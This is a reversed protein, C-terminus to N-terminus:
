DGDQSLCGNRIQQIMTFTNATDQLIMIGIAIGFQVETMVITLAVTIIYIVVVLSYQQAWRGGILPFVLM